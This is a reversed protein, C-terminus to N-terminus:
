IKSTCNSYNIASTRNQQNFCKLPVSRKTQVMKKQVMKKLTNEIRKILAGIFSGALTPFLSVYSTFEAVDPVLPQHFDSLRILWYGGIIIVSQILALIWGKRPERIGGIFSITMMITLSSYISDNFHILVVQLLSFIIVLILNTKFSGSLIKSQM